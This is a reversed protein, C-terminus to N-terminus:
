PFLATVVHDFAHRSWVFDLHSVRSLASARLRPAPAPLALRAPVVADDHSGLCILESSEPVPLTALERVLRSGPLMQWVARSFAGFLLVGFWAYPTGRHPTGLTIVRRIRRGRDIRKLWYTAVLGGLSHGIVDVRGAGSLTRELARDVHRATRRVDALHLPLRGGLRMRVCPRGLRRQIREELPRLVDSTTGFGHLLVVPAASGDLAPPAPADGDRLGRLARRWFRERITDRM